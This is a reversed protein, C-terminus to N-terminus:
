AAAYRKLLEEAQAHFQGRTLVLTCGAARAKDLREVHVHPGFAITVADAALLPAARALLEAPDLGPHGLDLIVLRPPQAALATVLADASSVTKLEVGARQAAGALQSQMLLDSILAAAPM